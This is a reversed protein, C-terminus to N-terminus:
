DNLGCDKAPTPTCSLKQYGPPPSVELKAQNETTRPLWEYDSTTTGTFGKAVVRVPLYSKTDVWIQMSEEAAKAKDMASGPGGLWQLHLAQKGNVTEKGVLTVKGSDVARKLDTPNLGPPLSQIRNSAAAGLQNVEFTWWKKKDHNFETAASGDLVVTFSRTEGFFIQNDQRERKSTPDSWAEIMSAPKGDRGQHASKEYRIYTPLESLATATQEAVYSVTFMDATEPTTSSGGGPTLVLSAAVAAAAIVPVAAALGLTRTRHRNKRHLTETLGSPANMAYTEEHLRDGLLRGLQEDDFATM